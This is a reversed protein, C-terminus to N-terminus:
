VYIEVREEQVESARHESTCRVRVYKGLLQREVLFSSLYASTHLTANGVTIKNLVSDVNKLTGYLYYM